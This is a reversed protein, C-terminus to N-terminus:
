VTDCVHVDVWYQSAADVLQLAWSHEGPCGVHLPVM